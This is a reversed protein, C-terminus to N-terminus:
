VNRSLWGRDLANAAYSPSVSEEEAKAAVELVWALWHRQADTLADASTEVSGHLRLAGGWTTVSYYSYASSVISRTISATVASGGECLAPVRIHLMHSDLRLKHPIDSTDLM